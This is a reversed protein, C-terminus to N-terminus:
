SPDSGTQRSLPVCSVGEVRVHYMTLQLGAVPNRINCMGDGMGIIFYVSTSCSPVGVYMAFM